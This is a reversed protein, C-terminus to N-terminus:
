PKRLAEFALTEGVTNVVNLWDVHEPYVVEFNGTDNLKIQVYVGGPLKLMPERYALVRDEIRGKKAMYCANYCM